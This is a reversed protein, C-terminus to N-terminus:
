HRSTTKKLLSCLLTPHFAAVATPMAFRNWPCVAQCTDCGYVRNGLLVAQEVPIEGRHEITLYSICKRANLVNEARGLSRYSLREFLPHLFRLSEKQPSDYTDVVLTTVIEGLFFFSGKGPIILNTNKGIWGLGAKWAWYRELLPASDTFVRAENNSPHHETIAKWLQRLKDKVVGHYDEGYAYYSIYPEAPNRLVKPYYNM